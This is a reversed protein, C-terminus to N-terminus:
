EPPYGMFVCFISNISTSMKNTLGIIVEACTLCLFGSLSGGLSLTLIWDWHM